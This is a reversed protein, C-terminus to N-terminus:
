DRDPGPERFRQCLSEVEHALSVADYSLQAWVLEKRQPRGREIEALAVRMAAVRAGLAAVTMTRPLADLREEAEALVTTVLTVNRLM